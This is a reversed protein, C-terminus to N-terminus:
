SKTYSFIKKQNNEIGYFFGKSHSNHQSSDLLDNITLKRTNFQESM